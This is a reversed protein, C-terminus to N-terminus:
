YAYMKVCENGIVRVKGINMEKVLGSVLTHLEKGGYRKSGNDDETLVTAIPSKSDAPRTEPIMEKIRKRFVEATAPLPYNM